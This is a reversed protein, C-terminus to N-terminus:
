RRPGVGVALDCSLVCDPALAGTDEFHVPSHRGFRSDGDGLGASCCLRRSLVVGSADTAGKAAQRHEESGRGDGSGDSAGRKSITM